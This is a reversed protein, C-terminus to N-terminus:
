PLYKETVSDQYSVDSENLGKEFTWNLADEWQARTPVGSTPYVPVDFSGVLPPPVLEKEVLLTSYKEPNANIHQIAEEIAALFGKIADGNQDIVSKRFSITSFSVEPFTTDDIVMVAGGQQALSTPPEPLMGADLEGSSLLALRDGISPIAITQIEEDSFGQKQLIRDTLYEIITGKSVGIDSNKLQDVETINSSASALISFLHQEPTATRAYRVIQVRTEEANFFVTSVIENIMGDAQGSAILQDREPASSVPILEVNIGYEEYLGEEQAVYMPLSDLIPLVAVKLTVPEKSTTNQSCASIIFTTFALILVFIYRGPFIKKKSQM